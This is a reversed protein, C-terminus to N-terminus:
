VKEIEGYIALIDLGPNGLLPFEMIINSYADDYLAKAYAEPNEKYPVCARERLLCKNPYGGKCVPLWVCEMCEEDHPFVTDLYMALHDLNGATYFPDMPDWEEVTGFSHEVKDVDDWCKQRNGKADIGVNFLRSALCYNGGGGVLHRTKDHTEEMGNLTVQIRSVKGRKLM